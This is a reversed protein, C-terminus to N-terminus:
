RSRYFSSYETIPFMLDSLSDPLKRPCCHLDAPSLPFHPIESIRHGINTCESPRSVAHFVTKLAIVEARLMDNGCMSIKAWKKDAWMMNSQISWVTRPMSCCYDTKDSTLEQRKKVFHNNRPIAGDFWVTKMNKVSSGVALAVEELIKEVFNSIEDTGHCIKLTDEPNHPRNKM